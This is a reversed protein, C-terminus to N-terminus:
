RRFSWPGVVEYLRVIFVVGTVVVAVDHKREALEIEVPYGLNIGRFQRLRFCVGLLVFGIRRLLVRGTFLCLRLRQFM